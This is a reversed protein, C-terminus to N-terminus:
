FILDETRNTWVVRAPPYSLPPKCLIRIDRQGEIDYVPYMLQTFVFVTEIVLILIM